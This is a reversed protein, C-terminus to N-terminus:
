QIVIQIVYCIDVISRLVSFAIAATWDLTLCLMAPEPPVQHLAQLTFLFWPDITFGLICAVMFMKNWQAMFKSHPNMIGWPQWLMSIPQFLDQLDEWAKTWRSKRKKRKPKSTYTFCTVGCFRVITRQGQEADYDYGYEDDDDDDDDDFSYDSDDDDGGGGRGGGGGRRTPRAMPEPFEDIVQAMLKKNRLAHMEPPCANCTPDMCMMMSKQVKKTAQTPGAATPTMPGGQSVSGPLQLGTPKSFGSAFQVSMRRQRAAAAAASGPTLMQRLGGAGPTGGGISDHRQRRFQGSADQPISDSGSVSPHNPRTFIASATTRARRVNPKATMLDPAESSLARSHRPKSPPAPAPAPAETPAPTDFKVRREGGGGGGGGGSGGSIGGSIVGSLGGSFGVGAIDGAVGGLSGSGPIHGGGLSGSGPIHGGGGGVSGGRGPKWASSESRPIESSGGLLGVGSGMSGAESEPSDDSDSDDGDDNWSLGGIRAPFKPQPFDM